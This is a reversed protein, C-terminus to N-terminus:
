FCTLNWSTMPRSGLNPDEVWEIKACAMLVITFVLMTLVVLKASIKKVFKAFNFISKALILSTSAISIADVDPLLVVHTLRYAASNVFYRYSPCDYDGYM